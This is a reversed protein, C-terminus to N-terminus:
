VYARPTASSVPKRAVKGGIISHDGHTIAQNEGCNQNRLFTPSSAPVAFLSPVADQIPRRESADRLSMLNVVGAAGFCADVRCVQDGKGGVHVELQVLSFASDLAIV